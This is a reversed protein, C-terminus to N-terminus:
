NVWLVTLKIKYCPITLDPQRTQPHISKLSGTENISEALHPRNFRNSRGQQGQGPFTDTGAIKYTCLKLAFVEQCHLKGCLM